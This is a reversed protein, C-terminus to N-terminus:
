PIMGRKKVLIIASGRRFYFFRYGANGFGAGDDAPSVCIYHNGNEYGAKM